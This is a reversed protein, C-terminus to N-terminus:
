PNLIDGDIDLRGGPPVELAELRDDALLAAACPQSCAVLTSDFDIETAVCWSRDDPWVLSPTLSWPPEHFQCVEDLPVRALLYDRHPHSFRPARSVSERLASQARERAELQLRAAEDIRGGKVATVPAASSWLAAPASQLQGFGDWIGIWCTTPTSTWAGLVDSLAACLRPSTDGVRPEYDFPSPGSTRQLPVRIREFQMLPHYRRGSWAAIECWSVAEGGLHAPHLV